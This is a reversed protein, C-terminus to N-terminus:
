VLKLLRLLATILITRLARRRIMHYPLLVDRIGVNTEREYKVGRVIAVPFGQASPKMILAAAATIEDAVIDVGGYKPRGYIDQSAFEKDVPSIGSCGVAIDISGIKTLSFETDTIIVAVRRGTFRELKRRIEEAELDPNPPPYTVCGPKVNSQDLGAESAIMGFFTKALIISKDHEILKFADKISRSYKKLLLKRIM